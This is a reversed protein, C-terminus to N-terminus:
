LSGGRHGLRDLLATATKATEVAAESRAIQEKLAQRTNAHATSEADYAKKWEDRDTRMFSLTAKPVLQGFLILIVMIGLVGYNLLYTVVDNMVAGM